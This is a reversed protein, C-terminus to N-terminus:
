RFRHHIHDSACLLSRSIWAHHCKSTAQLAETTQKHAVDDPRQPKKIREKPKDSESVDVPVAEGGNPLAEVKSDPDGSM